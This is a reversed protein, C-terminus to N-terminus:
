QQEFWNIDVQGSISATTKIAVLLSDGVGLTFDLGAIDITQSSDSGVVFSFFPTIESLNTITQNSPDLQAYSM